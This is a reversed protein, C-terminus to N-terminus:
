SLIEYNFFLQIYGEKSDGQICYCMQHISYESCVNVSLCHYTDLHVEMHTAFFRTVPCKTCRTRRITHLRVLCWIVYHHTATNKHHTHPFYYMDCTYPRESIHQKMLWSFSCRLVRHIWPLFVQPKLIFNWLKFVISYLGGQFIRYFFSIQRASHNSILCVM